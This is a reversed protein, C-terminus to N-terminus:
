KAKSSSKAAKSAKSRQEVVMKLVVVNELPRDNKDTAVTQIREAVDMGEIVQGFVTYSGDLHPAGGYQEYDEFMQSTMEIGKEELQQRVKKLSAPGFSKGTVIYFQSGSSRQEPNVDDSERAAALAGRLHYYYPLLFEPPLTYDVGGDGLLAGAPATKSTPDGGQIMFKNIVRHFITGDYHGREALKLFNDRHIPADDLLAVRINGMSTEIRVISRKDKKAKGFMIACPLILAALLLLRRIMVIRTIHTQVCLTLCKTQYGFCRKSFFIVSTFFKDCANGRSLLTFTLLVCSAQLYVIKPLM